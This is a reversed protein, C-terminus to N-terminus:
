SLRPASFANGDSRKRISIITSKESSPADELEFEINISKTSVPKTSTRLPKIPTSNGPKPKEIKGVRRTTSKPFTAM